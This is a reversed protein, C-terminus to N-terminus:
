WMFPLYPRTRRVAFCYIRSIEYRANSTRPDWARVTHDAGASFVIREDEAVCLALVARFHGGSSFKQGKARPTHEFCNRQGRFIEKKGTELDWRIMCCDKGGSYAHLNGSKGCAPQDSSGQGPLAICTVPLKHGKFFIPNGFRLDDALARVPMSSLQAADMRTLSHIDWRLLSVM